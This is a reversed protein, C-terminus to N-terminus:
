NLSFTNFYYFIWVFNNEFGGRCLISISYLSKLSTTVYPVATNATKVININKTFLIDTFEIITYDYM